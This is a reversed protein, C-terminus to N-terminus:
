KFRASKIANALRQSFATVFKEDKWKPDGMAHLIAHTVEHWFTESIADAARPRGRKKTAIYMVNLAPYTKGVVDRESEYQTVRYSTNGILLRSPLKM